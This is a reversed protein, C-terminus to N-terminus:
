ESSYVVSGWMVILLAGMGTVWVGVMRPTVNSLPIVNLCCVSVILVLALFRSFTMRASECVVKPCELSSMVVVYLCYM